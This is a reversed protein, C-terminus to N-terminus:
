PCKKFVDVMPAGRMLAARAKDHCADTQVLDWMMGAVMIMSFLGFTGVGAAILHDGERWCRFALSGVVCAVVVFLGSLGIWYLANM